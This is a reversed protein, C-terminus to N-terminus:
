VINQLAALLAVPDRKLCAAIARARVDELVDMATLNCQIAHAMISPCVNCALTDPVPPPLSSDGRDRLPNACVTNVMRQRCSAEQADCPNTASALLSAVKPMAGAGDSVGDGSSHVLTSGSTTTPLTLPLDQQQARHLAIEKQLVAQATRLVSQLETAHAVYPTIAAMSAAHASSSTTAWSLGTATCDDTRAGNAAAAAVEKIPSVLAHVPSVSGILPTATSTEPETITDAAAAQAPAPSISPLMEPRMRKMERLVADGSEDEACTRTSKGPLLGGRGDGLEVEPIGSVKMVVVPSRPLLSAGRSQRDIAPSTQGEEAPAPAVPSVGVEHQLYARIARQMARASSCHREAMLRVWRWLKLEEVFVSGSLWAEPTMSPGLMLVVNATAGGDNTPTESAVVHLMEAEEASLARIMALVHEANRQQVVASTAGYHGDPRPPLASASTGRSSPASAEEAGPLAAATAPNASTTCSSTSPFQLLQLYRMCTEHHRQHHRRLEAGSLLPVSVSTTTTQAAAAAAAAAAATTDSLGNATAGDRSPCDHFVGYLLLGVEHSPISQFTTYSRELIDNAWALIASRTYQTTRSM